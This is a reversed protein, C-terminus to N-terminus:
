REIEEAFRRAFLDFGRHADTWTAAYQAERIDTERYEYSVEGLVAGNADTLTGVVHSGGLGFSSLSLNGSTSRISGAGRRDWGWDGDGGLQEFTPRNPTAKVLTLDLEVAPEGESALRGRRSLEREVDSRLEEMLRDLDRQGIDEVHAALVEGLRVEDVRIPGDPAGTLDVDWDGAALASGATLVALGAGILLQNIRM